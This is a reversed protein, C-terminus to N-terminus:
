YGSAPCELQPHVHSLRLEERVQELVRGLLNEGKWNQSDQAKPDNPALGIGYVCDSPSAEAMRRPYTKLLREALEENQSFKARAAKLMVPERLQKWKKENWPQVKKGLKKQTQPDSTSLIQMKMDVDNMAVAKSWMIYQEACNFLQGDLRFTSKAWNSLYGNKDTDKWFLVPAKSNSSSGALAETERAQQRMVRSADLASQKQGLEVLLNRIADVSLASPTRLCGGDPVIIVGMGDHVLIAHADRDSQVEIPDDLLMGQGDFAVFLRATSMDRKKLMSAQNAAARLIKDMSPLVHLAAVHLDTAATPVGADDECSAAGAVQSRVKKEKKSTKEKGKPKGAADAPVQLCIAIWVPESIALQTKGWSGPKLWPRMSLESAVGGVSAASLQASATGQASTPFAEQEIPDCDAVRDTQHELIDM